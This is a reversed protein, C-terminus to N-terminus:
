EVTPFPGGLLVGDTEKPTRGGSRHGGGSPARSSSRLTPTPFRTRRSITTLLVSTRVLRVHNRTCRLFPHTKPCLFRITLFGAGRGNPESPLPVSRPLSPSVDAVPARPRM